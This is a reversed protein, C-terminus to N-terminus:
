AEKLTQRRALGFRAGRRYTEFVPFTNTRKFWQVAETFVSLRQKCFMQEREVLGSPSYCVLRSCLGYGDCSFRRRYPYCAPSSPQPCRQSNEGDVMTHIM